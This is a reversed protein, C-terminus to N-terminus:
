SMLLPSVAVSPADAVGVLANLGEQAQSTSGTTMVIKIKMGSFHWKTKMLVNREARKISTVQREPLNETKQRLFMIRM